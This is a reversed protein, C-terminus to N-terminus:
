TGGLMWLIAALIALSNIAVLAIAYPKTFPTASEISVISSTLMNSFHFLVTFMVLGFISRLWKNIKKLQGLETELEAKTVSNERAAAEAQTAPPEGRLIGADDRQTQAMLSTRSHQEMNQHPHLSRKKPDL